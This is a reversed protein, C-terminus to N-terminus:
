DTRPNSPTSLLNWIYVRFFNNLTNPFIGGPLTFWRASFCNGHFRLKPRSPFCIRWETSKQFHIPNSYHFNKKGSGTHIIHYNCMYISVFARVCASVCMIEYVFCDPTSIMRARAVCACDTAMTQSGILILYDQRWKPWDSGLVKYIFFIICYNCRSNNEHFHWFFKLEGWQHQFVKNFGFVVSSFFPGSTM